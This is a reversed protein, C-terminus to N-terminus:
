SPLSETNQQTDTERQSKEKKKLQESARTILKAMFDFTVDEWFSAPKDFMLEMTKITGEEDKALANMKRITKQTMPKTSVIHEKDGLKIKMQYPIFKEEFFDM